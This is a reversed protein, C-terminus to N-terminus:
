ESNNEGNKAGENRVAEIVRRKCHLNLGYLKNAVELGTNINQIYNVISYRAEENGYEVETNTLRERKEMSVNGIGILSLFEQRLMKKLKMIDEAIYSQKPNLYQFNSAMGNKVYVAPNGESIEDYMARMSNAKAKNDCEAIFAVRTNMLNVAISGDCNGLLYSYIDLLQSFGSFDDKVFIHACNTSIRRRLEGLIPNAVVCETPKQFVNIGALGTMLPIVGMDTETICLNGDIMLHRWFYQMDWYSPIDGTIEFNGVLDNFLLSRNVDVSINCQGSVDLPKSGFLRRLVDSLRGDNSLTFVGM